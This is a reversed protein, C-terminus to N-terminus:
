RPLNSFLLLSGQCITLRLWLTTISVYDSVSAGHDESNRITSLLLVQKEERQQQSDREVASGSIAKNWRTTLEVGLLATVGSGKRGSLAFARMTTGPPGFNLDKVIHRRVLRQTQLLYCSSFQRISM